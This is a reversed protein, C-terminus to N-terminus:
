TSSSVLKSASAIKVSLEQISTDAMIELIPLAADFERLLWNRMEVAVLSDMGYESMSRSPSIGEIPVMLLSSTKPLLEACIRRAADETSGTQRLTERIHLAPSATTEKDSRRALQHGRRRFHSFIPAQFVPDATETWDKLGIIVASPGHPRFPSLIASKIMAMVEEERLDRSWLGRVGRRALYKEAVIGIDVVKGLDLTVAPLGQRNRFEAFVDQFVSASVYAAQSPDGAIGVVSSLMIFFDLEVKSLASHLNWVGDAKPRIVENFDEVRMRALLDPQPMSNIM